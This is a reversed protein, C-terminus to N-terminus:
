YLNSLEPVALVEFKSPLPVKWSKLVLLTVLLIKSKSKEWETKIHCYFLFSVKQREKQTMQVTFPTWNVTQSQSSLLYTERPKM